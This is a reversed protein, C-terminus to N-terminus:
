DEAIIKDEVASIHKLIIDAMFSYFIDTNIKIQREEIENEPEPEYCEIGNITGAYKSKM